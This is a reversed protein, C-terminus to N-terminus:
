RLRLVWLGSLMDSALVYRPTVYVGWVARCSSGPCLLRERDATATPLFRAVVRPRRPDSVDAAVVGQRYWSFFALRGAIKPDHVSDSLDLGSVRDFDQGSRGQRLLQPSLEVESLRVPAAPNSVDFLTATGGDTEHTEILLTENRGLAASHANGVEGSEFSTRGLYRPRDPRTIDLIVTGLDWYSLFARTGARNTIVSHVLNQKLRGTGLGDNPHIGLTKWAGWEGVQIPRRPDSVDFIRFDPKGPTTAEHRAPDYDPASRIESDVIATYVYARGRATGLWLEHSGRPETQVRALQRPRSPKSVDYLAFGKFEGPRCAQVSTVALDGKFTGTSVTRVITKETWTGQIAGFRSVLKPRRPNRLDYVRVGRAPCSERGRHSSLYAYDRHGFVDGAYVDGPDAHALLEFRPSAVDADPMGQATAIGVLAAIVLLGALGGRM